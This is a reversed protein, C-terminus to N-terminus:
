EEMALAETLELEAAALAEEAEEIAREYEALDKELEKMMRAQALEDM